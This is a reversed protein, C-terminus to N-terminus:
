RGAFRTIPTTPNHSVQKTTPAPCWRRTRPATAAATWRAESRPWCVRSRASSPRPACSSTRRHGSVTLFSRFLFPPSFFHVSFLSEVPPVLDDDNLPTPTRRTPEARRNTGDDDPREDSVSVPYAIAPEQPSPKIKTPPPAHDFCCRYRPQPRRSLSRRVDRFGSHAAVFPIATTRTPRQDGSSQRRTVCVLRVRGGHSGTRVLCQPPPPTYRTQRALPTGAARYRGVVVTVIARSVSIVFLFDRPCPSFTGSRPLRAIGYVDGYIM